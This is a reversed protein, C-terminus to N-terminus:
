VFKWFFCSKKRLLPHLKHEKCLFYKKKISEPVLPPDHMGSFDAFFFFLQLNPVIEIQCLQDLIMLFVWARRQPIELFILKILSKNDKIMKKLIKKKSQLFYFYNANDVIIKYPAPCHYINLWDIWYQDILKYISPSMLKSILRSLELASLEPTLLVDEDSIPLLDLQEESTIAVFSIELLLTPSTTNFPVSFTTIIDIQWFFDLETYCISSM